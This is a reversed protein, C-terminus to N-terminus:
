FSLCFLSKWRSHILIILNVFDGCDDNYDEDNANIVLLSKNVIVEKESRESGPWPGQM